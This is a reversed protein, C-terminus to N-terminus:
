ETERDMQKVLALIENMECEMKENLGLIRMRDGVVPVMLSYVFFMVNSLELVAFLVAEKGHMFISSLEIKNEGTKKVDLSLQIGEVNPHAGLDIYKEYAAAMAPGFRPHEENIENMINTWVFLKRSAKRGEADDTRGLWAKRHEESRACKWAYAASEIISRMLVVVEFLQGSLALRCAGRYTGFARMFLQASVQRAEDVEHFVDTSPRVLIEDLRVIVKMWDPFTAASAFMQNETLDLFQTLGDRGWAEPVHRGEQFKSLAAVTELKTTIM